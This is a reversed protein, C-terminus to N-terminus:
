RRWTSAATKFLARRRRPAAWAFSIVNDRGASKGFLATALGGGAPGSELLRIPFRRAMEPSALGGASQMLYFRGAFGRRYLEAEIRAIYRDVL